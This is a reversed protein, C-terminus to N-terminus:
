AEVEVARWRREAKDYYALGARRLIQSTRDARRDSIFVADVTKYWNVWGTRLADLANLVDGGELTEGEVTYVSRLIKFRAAEYAERTMKQAASM